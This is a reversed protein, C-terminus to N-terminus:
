PAAHRRRRLPHLRDIEPRRRPLEVPEPDIIEVAAIILRPEVREIRRRAHRAVNEETTAAGDDLDVERLPRIVPEVEIRDGIHEAHDRVRIHIEAHVRVGAKLEPRAVRRQEVRTPSVM